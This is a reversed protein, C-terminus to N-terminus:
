EDEQKRLYRSYAKTLKEREAVTFRKKDLRVPPKFDPTAYIDCVMDQFASTKAAKVQRDPLVVSEPFHEEVFAIARKRGDEDTHASEFVYSLGVLWQGAELATRGVSIANENARPLRPAADFGAFKLGFGLVHIASNALGAHRLVAGVACVNCTGKYPLSRNQVWHGRELPETKLAKIIQKKTIRM